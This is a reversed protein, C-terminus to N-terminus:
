AIWLHTKPGLNRLFESHIGDKGPTKGAKLEKISNCVESSSFCVSSINHLQHIKSIHHLQSRIIKNHRKDIKIQSNEMLVRSVARAKIKSQQSKVPKGELRKFVAWADRSNKRMDLSEVTDIWKQKKASDLSALLSKGLETNPNQKYETFLNESQEDWGPVYTKKYGRPINKKASKILL